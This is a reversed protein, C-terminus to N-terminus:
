CRRWQQGWMRRVARRAMTELISLSESVRGPAECVRGGRGAMSEPRNLMPAGRESLMRIASRLDLHVTKRNRSLLNALETLPAGVAFVVLRRLPLLDLPNRLTRRGKSERHHHSGKAGSM